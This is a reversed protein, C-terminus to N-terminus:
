TPNSPLPGLYAGCNYEFRPRTGTFQTAVLGGASWPFTLKQGPLPCEGFSTSLEEPSQTVLVFEGASVDDDLIIDAAALQQIEAVNDFHIPAAPFAFFARAVTSAFVQVDNCWVQRSPAVASGIACMGSFLDLLPGPPSDAIVDAVRSAISQKTGMYSVQLPVDGRM